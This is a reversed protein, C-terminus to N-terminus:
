HWIRNIWIYIAFINQLRITKLYCKLCALVCKNACKFVKIQSISPVRVSQHSGSRYIPTHCTSDTTWLPGSIVPLSLNSWMEGLERIYAEDDSQKDYGPCEGWSLLLRHIRCRWDIVNFIIHHHLQLFKRVVM